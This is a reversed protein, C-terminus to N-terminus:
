LLMLLAPLQTLCRMLLLLYLMILNRISYLIYFDYLLRLLLYGMSNHVKFIESGISTIDQDSPVSSHLMTMSSTADSPHTVTRKVENVKAEISKTITEVEAERIVNLKM